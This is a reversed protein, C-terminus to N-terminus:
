AKARAVLGRGREGVRAALAFAEAGNGAELFERAFGSPLLGLRLGRGAVRPM